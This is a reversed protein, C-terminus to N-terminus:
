WDEVCHLPRLLANRLPPLLKSLWFLFSRAVDHMSFRHLPFLIAHRLASSFFFFVQELETGVHFLCGFCSPLRSCCLFLARVRRFRRFSGLKAWSYLCRSQRSDRHLCRSITCAVRAHHACGFICLPPPPVPPTENQVQAHSFVDSVFVCRHVHPLAIYLCRYLTGRFRLSTRGKGM